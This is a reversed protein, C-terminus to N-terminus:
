VEKSNGRSNILHSLKLDSKCFRMVKKLWELDIVVFSHSISPPGLFNKAVSSLRVSELKWTRYNRVVASQLLINVASLQQKKSLLEGLRSQPSIKPSCEMSPIAWLLGEPESWLIDRVGRKIKYPQAIFPGVFAQDEQDWMWMICRGFIEIVVM